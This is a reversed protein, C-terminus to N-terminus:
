EQSGPMICTKKHTFMELHGELSMDCVVREQRRTRSIMFLIVSRQQSSSGDFCHSAMWLAYSEERGRLMLLIVVGIWLRRRWGSSSLKEERNCRDRGDVHPEQSHCDSHNALKYEPLPVAKSSPRM